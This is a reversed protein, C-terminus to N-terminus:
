GKDTTVLTGTNNNSLAIKDVVDINAVVSTDLPDVSRAKSAVEAL